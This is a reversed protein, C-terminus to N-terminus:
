RTRYMKPAVCGVSALFRLTLRVVPASVPDDSADLHDGVVQPQADLGALRVDPVRLRGVREDVQLLLVLADEPLHQAEAKVLRGHQLKTSTSSGM